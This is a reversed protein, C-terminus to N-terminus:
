KATKSRKIHEYFQRALGPNRINQLINLEKATFGSLAGSSLRLQQEIAQQQSPAQQQMQPQIKQVPRQIIRNSLPPTIDKRTLPASIDKRTLPASFNDKGLPAPFDGDAFKLMQMVFAQRQEAPVKDKRLQRACRAVMRNYDALGKEKLEMLEQLEKAADNYGSKMLTYAISEIKEFDKVIKTVQSWEMDLSALIEEQAIESLKKVITM